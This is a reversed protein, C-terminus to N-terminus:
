RRMRTSATSFSGLKIFLPIMTVTQPLMITAMCLGYMITRGRFRIRAFAYAILSNSMVAGVVNLIVIVVTNVFYRAFPM